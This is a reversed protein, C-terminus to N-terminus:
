GERKGLLGVPRLILILIMFVYPLIPAMQSITVNLVDYAVSDPSVSAGVLQLASLASYDMSVAFTQCVGILLSALLAGALSGLGGVIVVVFIVDGLAAAMSPETVFANGGIVGALGALAAGGAFVITNLKPVDHGLAEVSQPHTLAAQIILGLRTRTLMLYIVLLMVLAVGMMFARYAPFTTSFITFLSGSLEKPIAYPQTQKGWVLQVLELAIYALGFTFLLEAIHGHRHVTRLGFREVLAGVCGVLIPALFFAGWYGAKTSITFAIYAGIMYFSAHAFNLVGMMSFVLTLGASLMFLLLGYGVGNLLNIALYEL